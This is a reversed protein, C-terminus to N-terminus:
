FFLNVRKLGIDCVLKQESRKLRKEGGDGGDLSGGGGGRLVM